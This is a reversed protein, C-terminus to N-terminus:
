SRYLGEVENSGNMVDISCRWRDALLEHEKSVDMYGHHIIAQHRRKRGIVDASPVDAIKLLVRRRYKEFAIYLLTLCHLPLTKGIL